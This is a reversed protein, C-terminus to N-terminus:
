IDNISLTGSSKKLPEQSLFKVIHLHFSLNQNLSEFFVFIEIKIFISKPRKLISPHRSKPRKLILSAFHALTNLKAYFFSFIFLAFIVCSILYYVPLSNIEKMHFVVLYKKIQIVISLLNKIWYGKLFYVFIKRKWWIILTWVYNSMNKFSTSASCHHFKSSVTTQLFSM